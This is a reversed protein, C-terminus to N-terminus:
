LKATSPFLRTTPCRVRSGGPYTRIRSGWGSKQYSTNIKLTACEDLSKPCRGRLSSSSKFNVIGLSSLREALEPNPTRQGSVIMSRLKAWNPEVHSVANRLIGVRQSRKYSEYYIIDHDYHITQPILEPPIAAFAKELIDRKFFRAPNGGKIPDFAYSEGFRANVMQKSACYLKPIFGRTNYSHEELVLMDHNNMLAVAQEIATPALIQDTDLLLVYTGKSEKVGLYRSALLKGMACSLELM